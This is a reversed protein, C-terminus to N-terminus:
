VFLAQKGAQTLLPQAVQEFKVTTADFDAHDRLLNASFVEAVHDLELKRDASLFVRLQGVADQRLQVATISDFSKLIHVPLIASLELTGGGITGVSVADKSRGTVAGLTLANGSEVDGGESRDGISYNILPFLRDDLTTIAMEGTAAVTVIFSQWLVRLPWSGGHSTAIVGTEAAGYEIIVPVGFVREILSADARSVTEATVVVGRLKSLRSVDLTNVEIHRALKFIASTYGVIYYPNKQILVKYHARLADPSMDYADVRTANALVDQIKRKMKQTKGAVGQANFLHAHGWIHLYSDFPRIGWSARGAFTNAYFALAEGAGRPYRAPTGSTGGTSYAMTISGDQFVESTREVITTKTLLPFAQIEDISGVQEPLSHEHAWSRYFPVESLCYAWVANFRSVQESEVADRDQPRAYRKSRRAVERQRDHFLAARLLPAYM